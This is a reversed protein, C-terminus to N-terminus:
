KQIGLKFIDKIIQKDIEKALEEVLKEELINDTNVKKSILYEIFDCYKTLKIDKTLKKIKLIREYLFYNIEISYYDGFISETINLINDKFLNIGDEKKIYFNLEIDKLDKM